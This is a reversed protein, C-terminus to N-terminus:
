LVILLRIINKNNGFAIVGSLGLYYIYAFLVFPLVITLWRGGPIRVGRLRDAAGSRTFLVLLSGALGAAALYIAILAYHVLAVEAKAITGASVGLIAAMNLPVIKDFIPQVKVGSGLLSSFLWVEATTLVGAVVGATLGSTLLEGSSSERGQRRLMLSFFLAALVALVPLAAQALRIPVGTLILDALSGFPLLGTNLRKNM